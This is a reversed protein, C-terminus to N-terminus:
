RDRSCIASQQTIVNTRAPVDARADQAFLDCVKDARGANFDETWQALAAKIEAAADDAWSWTPAALPLMLAMGLSIWSGRQRM